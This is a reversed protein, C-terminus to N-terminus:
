KEAEIDFIYALVDIMTQPSGSGMTLCAPIAPDNDKLAQIWTNIEDKIYRKIIDDDTILGDERFSM